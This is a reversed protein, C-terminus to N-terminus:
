DQQGVSFDHGWFSAVTSEFVEYKAWDEITRGEAGYEVDFGGPSQMYFSVM